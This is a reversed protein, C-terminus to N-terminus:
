LCSPLSTSCNPFAQTRLIDCSQQAAILDMEAFRCEASSRDDRCAERVRAKALTIDTSIRVGESYISTCQSASAAAAAAQGAAATTYVCSTGNWVKGGTCYAPNAQLICAGYKGAVTGSPCPECPGDKCRGQRWDSQSLEPTPKACPEKDCNKRQLRAPDSPDDPARAVQTRGTPDATKGTSSDRGHTNAIQTDLTGKTRDPGADHRRAASSDTKSDWAPSSSDKGQHTVSSTGSGPSGSGRSGASNISDRSSDRDRDRRSSDSGSSGRDHSSSSSSGGGFGGGSHSSSSGSSTSTSSPSSSTSHSASGSSSSSPSISPSSSSTSPSSTATHTPPTPTSTVTPSRQGVVVSSVLLLGAVLSFLRM